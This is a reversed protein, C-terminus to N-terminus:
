DRADGTTPALTTPNPYLLQLMEPKSANYRRTIEEQTLITVAMDRAGQQYGIWLADVVHGMEIPRDPATAATRAEVLQAYLGGSLAVM